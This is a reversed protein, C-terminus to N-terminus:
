GFPFFYTAYLPRLISITDPAPGAACRNLACMGSQHGPTWWNLDETRVHCWKDFAMSHYADWTYFLPLHAHINAWPWDEEAFLSPNDTTPEPSTKRLFFFFFLFPILSRLM